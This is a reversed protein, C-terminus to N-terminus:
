RFPKQIGTIRPQVDKERLGFYEKIKGQIRGDVSGEFAIVENNLKEYTDLNNRRAYDRAPKIAFYRHFLGPVGPKKTTANYAFYSGERNIMIKLGDSSDFSPVPDLFIGNATKDYREPVGQVELGDTMSEVEFENDSQMDVAELKKYVGTASIRSYVRYIDLILAGDEDTLLTYSRQGTVLNTKIIPYKSHNSDDFQWKGSAQIALAIFDDLALNVDAAFEKLKDDDGSIDGRDFGCEKEYIQVLGKYNTTDNFQLSM